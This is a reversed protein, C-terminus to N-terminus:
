AWCRLRRLTGGTQFYVLSAVLQRAILMVRRAEKAQIELSISKSSANLFAKAERKMAAMKGVDDPGGLASGEGDESALGRSASRAEPPGFPVNLRHCKGEARLDPGLTTRFEIWSKQCDTTNHVLRRMTEIKSAMTKGIGILTLFNTFRKGASSVQSTGDAGGDTSLTAARTSSAHTHGGGGGSLSEGQYDASFGAGISV